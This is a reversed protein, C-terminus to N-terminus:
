LVIIIVIIIVVVRIVGIVAGRRGTDHTANGTRWSDSRWIKSCGLCSIAKDALNVGLFSTDIAWSSIIGAFL